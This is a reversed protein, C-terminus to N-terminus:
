HLFNDMCSQTFDVTRSFRQNFSTDKVTDSYLQNALQWTPNEFLKEDMKIIHRESIKKALAELILEADLLALAIKERGGVLDISVKVERSKTKDKAVQQLETLLSITEMSFVLCTLLRGNPSNRDNQTTAMADACVGNSFLGILLLSSTIKKFTM